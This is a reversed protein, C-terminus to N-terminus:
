DDRALSLEPQQVADKVRFPSRDVVADFASEEIGDPLESEKRCSSARRAILSNIGKLRDLVSCWFIRKARRSVLAANRQRYKDMMRNPGLIFLHHEFVRRGGGLFGAMVARMPFGGLMILFGQAVAAQKRCVLM